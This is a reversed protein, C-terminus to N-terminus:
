ETVKQIIKKIQDELHKLTSSNDVVFDALKEKREDDWQANMREEIESINLGRELLRKIRVETSAKILVVYDFYKRTNAEFILASEAVVIDKRSLLIKIDSFIKERTEIVLPHLLEELFKRKSSDSFVISSLRKKDIEGKENIVDKGFFELVKEYGKNGKKLLNDVIKDSDIVIAGYKKFIEAAKSKGTGIGGTIGIKIM